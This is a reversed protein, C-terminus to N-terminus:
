FAVYSIPLFIHVSPKCLFLYLHDKLHIFLHEAERTLSIYILIIRLYWKERSLNAFTWTQARQQDPQPSTCLAGTGSSISM